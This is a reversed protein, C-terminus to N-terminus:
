LLKELEEIDDDTTSWSTCFRAITREGDIDEWKEFRVKEILCDFRDKEMIVFQQNTPSNWAFQYGKEEFVRKLRRAAAIGMKGNYLYYGDTFLTDFQIGLLRGKASLAGEQKKMRLFNPPLINNKIVLAEGIIAGCKTGGIYFADCLSAILPLTVDNYPAALAYALRAGDIYMYLDYMSCIERIEELESKTYLTGIETPESLYVMKPIVMAEPAASRSFEEMYKKLDGPRIKGDGPPLALVKHGTYEIAGAEHVSIHGTSAAIVGECRGLLTSVALQNTQTGGAVLTVSVDDRGLAKKIKGVASLTYGDNGYGPQSTYNSSILRELIKPAMGNNYDCEFSVVNWETETIM